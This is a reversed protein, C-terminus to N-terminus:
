RPLCALNEHSQRDASRKTRKREEEPADSRYSVTKKEESMKLQSVRTEKCRKRRETEEGGTKKRERETKKVEEM